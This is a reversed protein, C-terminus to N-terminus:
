EPLASVRAALKPPAVATYSELVWDFFQQKLAKTVRGPAFTV